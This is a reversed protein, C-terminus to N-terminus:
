SNTGSLSAALFLVFLALVHGTYYFTSNSTAWTRSYNLDEHTMAVALVLRTM